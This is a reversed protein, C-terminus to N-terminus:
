RKPGLTMIQPRDTTSDIMTREPQAAGNADPAFRYIKAGAAVYLHSTSDVAILNGGGFPSFSAPLPGIRRASTGSGLPYVNVYMANIAYNTPVESSYVSNDPGVVLQASPKDLAVSKVPCCGTSAPDYIDYGNARPVYIRGDPGTTFGYLPGGTQFTRIPPGNSAAYPYTAITHLGDVGYTGVLVGDRGLALGFPSRADDGYVNEITVDDPAVAFLRWGSGGLAYDHNELVWTFGNPAVVFGRIGPLDTKTGPWKISGFYEEATASGNGDAPYAKAVPNYAIWLTSDARSPARAPPESSVPPPTAGACAALTLGALVYFLARLSWM